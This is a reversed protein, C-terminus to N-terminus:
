SEKVFVGNKMTGKRKSIVEYASWVCEDFSLGQMEAQMILTVVVDGIADKIEEKNEKGVANALEGVEEMTKLLQSAPNSMDFIGRDKGWQTILCVCTSLEPRKKTM